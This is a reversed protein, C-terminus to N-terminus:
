FLICLLCMHTDVYKHDYVGELEWIVTTHVNNQPTYIFLVM